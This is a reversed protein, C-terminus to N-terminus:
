KKHKKIFYIITVAVVVVTGFYIGWPTGLNGAIFISTPGDAGGIIGITASMSKNLGWLFFTSVASAFLLLVSCILLIIGGWDKTKMHEPNCNTLIERAIQEPKGQRAIANEESEGNEVIDSIIEEYYEIYKKRETKKLCKLQRNLKTLFEQKNM